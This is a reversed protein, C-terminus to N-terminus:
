DEYSLTFTSGQGPTSDVTITGGLSEIQVKTMHLGLGRGEIDPHFRTYLGFINKGYLSLDIGLGNDAVQMYTTRYEKWAKIHIKLPRAPSKYKIANTILNYLCSQIYSKISNIKDAKPTIDIYFRADSKKIETALLQQINTLLETVTFTEHKESIKSKTSLILNLDRLLSDLKEASQEIFETTQQKETENLQMKLLNCSGIISAVPARLNHSVIYNFQMLENYKNNLEKILKEREELATKRKSVDRACCFARIASQEKSLKPNMHDEFWTYMGTGAHRIRYEVIVEKGQRLQHLAKDVVPQDEPHIADYWLASNGYIDEEELGLVSSVRPSIFEHVIDERRGSFQIAYVIESINLFTDELLLTKQQLQNKYYKLEEGLMNLGSLFANFVDDDKDLEVRLDFNGKGFELLLGTLREFKSSQEVEIM